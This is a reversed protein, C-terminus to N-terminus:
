PVQDIGFLKDIRVDHSGLIAAVKAVDLASGGGIGVVVEPQFRRVADSSAQFTELPPDPLVDCFVNPQCGGKQLQDQVEAFFARGAVGPDSVLLVRRGFSQVLKPLQGIAGCGMTVPPVYHSFVRSEM